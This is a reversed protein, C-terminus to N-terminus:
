RRDLAKTSIIDALIKVRPELRAIQRDIRAAAAGAMKGKIRGAPFQGRAQRLRKLEDRMAALAERPEQHSGLAVIVEQRVRIEGIRM